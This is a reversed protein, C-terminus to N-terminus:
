NLEKLHPLLSLINEPYTINLIVRQSGIRGLGLNPLIIEDKNKSLPPVSIEKDGDLTKVELTKGELAEALTIEIQSVLDEDDIQYNEDMSARVHLYVDSSEDAFGNSGLYHGVGALRLTNQFAGAPVNVSVTIDSPISGSSGCPNCPDASVRGNCGTCTQTMVMNGQRRTVKGLGNCTRCGNSKITKGEGKCAKCKARRNFSIEKRCGFAAEKFDLSLNVEIPPFNRRVNKGGMNNFFFLDNLADMNFGSFGGSGGSSFPVRDDDFKGNKICDYAENIKKFKDAAGEEKSVDPHYKKSLERFRKKAEDDSAAPTLNLASYAEEKKM